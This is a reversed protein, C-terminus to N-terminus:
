AILRPREQRERRDLWALAADAIRDAAHGNGYPLAPLAMAAHADTDGLLREVEEVIMRTDTGVLKSNGSRIGEPRETKSRLILLPVGLAPAEEQVGGSDSMIITSRRMAMLMARHDLPPLLNIRPRGALLERVTDAMEPNPHLVVDIALWPSRALTLLALAVPVFSLGWNERRHCTVLLRPLGGVPPGTRRPLSGVLRRLADIGTNGTVHVEGAVAERRLNAANDQTPAFLLSALRDITVRNEEEPWPLASDFSRLGAEVLGLPVDAEQAALAGGLATSTDGQVMALDSDRLSPALASAMARAYAFPDSERACRLTEAPFHGIGLGALDLRPHQGSLFLRPQCGRAALALALPALKIAEPRTGLILAVQHNAM